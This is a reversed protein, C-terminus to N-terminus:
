RYFSLALCRTYAGAYSLAARINQSLGKKRSFFNQEAKRDAGQRELMWGPYEGPLQSIANIRELEEPTFTVDVSKLNDELQETSKAGIIVTSVVQQHLLWALALQAVSAGKAPAM